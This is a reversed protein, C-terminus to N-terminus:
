SICSCQRNKIYGQQVEFPSDLPVFFAVVMNLVLIVLGPEFDRVMCCPKTLELSAGTRLVIPLYQGLLVAIPHLFYSPLPDVFVSWPM